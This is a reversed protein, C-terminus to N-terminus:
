ATFLYRPEQVNVMFFGMQAELRDVGSYLLEAELDHYSALKDDNEVVFRTIKALGHLDATDAQGLWFQRGPRSLEPAHRTRLSVASELGAEARREHAPDAPADNDTVLIECNALVSTISTDFFYPTM